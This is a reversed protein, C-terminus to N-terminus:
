TPIMNKKPRNQITRGTSFTLNPKEYGFTYPKRVEIHLIVVNLYPEIGELHRSDRGPIKGVIVPTMLNPKAFINPIRRHNFQKSKRFLIYKLM